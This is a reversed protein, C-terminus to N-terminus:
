EGRFAGGTLSAATRLFTSTKDDFYDGLGISNIPIAPHQRCLQYIQRALADDYAGSSARSPAGDSFLLITDVDYQYAKRLADLTNTWGGPEIAKLQRLLAERSSKGAAGRLDAFSGDEPFTQVKSSYVILVCQQVNLHQLWTSAIEQAEAWRDGGDAGPQRMSGSADILIAVRQLPGKLGVLERNNQAEDLLEAQRRRESETLQGELRQKETQLSQFLAAARKLQALYEETQKDGAAVKAQLEQVKVDSAVTASEAQDRADVLEVNMDKLKQKLSAVIADLEDAQKKLRDRQEEVQGLSAVKEALQALLAANDDTLTGKAALLGQRQTELRGKEALISDLKANVEALAALKEVLQRQLQDREDQTLHLTESTRDLLDRAADLESATSTLTAAIATNAESLQVQERAGKNLKTHLFIAIVMILVMTFLTVDNSAIWGALGAESSRSTVKELHM